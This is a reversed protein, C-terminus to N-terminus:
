PSTATSGDTQEVTETQRDAQGTGHVYSVWALFLAWWDAHGQPWSRTAVPLPWFTM